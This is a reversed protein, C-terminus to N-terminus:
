LKMRETDTARSTRVACPGRTFSIPPQRSLAPTHSLGDYEMMGYAGEYKGWGGTIDLVVHTTFEGPPAGPIPTRTPLGETRLVDGSKTLFIDLSRVNPPRSLLTVTVAGNLVGTVTGLFRAPETGLSIRTEAISGRVYQCDARAEIAAGLVALSVVLAIQTSGRM